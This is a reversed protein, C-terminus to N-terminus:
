GNRGVQKNNGNEGVYISYPEDKPKFNGFISVQKAKLQIPADTSM